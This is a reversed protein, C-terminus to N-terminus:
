NDDVDVDSNDALAENEIGQSEVAQENELADEVTTENPQATDNAPASSPSNCGALTLAAALGTILLRMVEGKLEPAYM